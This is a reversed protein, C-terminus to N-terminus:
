RANVFKNLSYSSTTQLWPAFCFHQLLKREDKRDSRRESKTNHRRRIRFAVTFTMSSTVVTTPMVTAAMCARVHIPTGVDIPVHADVIVSGGVFVVDHTFRVITVRPEAVSSV